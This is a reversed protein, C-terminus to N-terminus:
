FRVPYNKPFTFNNELYIQTCFAAMEPLEKSKNICNERMQEDTYKGRYNGSQLWYSPLNVQHFPALVHPITSICPEGDCSGVAPGLIFYNKGPVLELPKKSNFSLSDTIVAIKANYILISTGNAFTVYKGFYTMAHNNKISPCGASGSGWCTGSNVERANSVYPKIFDKYLMDDRCWFTNKCKDSEYAYGFPLGHETEGANLATSLISYTQKLKTATVKQRYASILTPMTIAAVVGIVGLTILVEALTFAKIRM